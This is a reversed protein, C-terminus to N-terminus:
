APRGFVMRGASTQLVNHVVLEVTQGVKSACDEGVVMTGDELYGVGQGASEGTRIVKIAIKEGQLVVPRLANAVDNLNVVEVGQVQAVKNLNFDTTLIRADLSKALQVLKADVGQIEPLEVDEVRVGRSKRLRALVDLGRRGRGRKLKDQSDAVQQLENLVFRPLIVAVDVIRTDMVDAIRGDIIASTDVLLPKSASGERRFEVLPVVFKLDDKLQLLVLVTLFNVAVTIALNRYTVAEPSDSPWVLTLVQIVFYSILCGVLIGFLVASIASAVRRTFAMAAGALVVGGGVGALLGAWANRYLGEGIAAGVAGCVGVFLARVVHLLM